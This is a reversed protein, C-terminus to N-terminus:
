DVTGLVGFSLSNCQRANLGFESDCWNAWSYGFYASNLFMQGNGEGAGHVSDTRGTVNSVFMRGVYCSGDTAGNTCNATVNFWYNGAGLTVPSTLNIAISYENLGLFNRGTAAIAINGTGTAIDTGGDGESVGQRIDYSGTAPDFNADAQVNFLVGTVTVTMGSPVNFNGYTSSGFVLLTNEDSLGAANPSSTDLDGGYFLCPDCLAPPAPTLTSQKADMNGALHQSAQPKQAAMASLTLAVVFAAAFFTTKVRNRRNSKKGTKKLM